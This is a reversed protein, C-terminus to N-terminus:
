RSAAALRRLEDACGMFHYPTSAPMESRVVKDGEVMEIWGYERLFTKFLADLATPLVTPDALADSRRDMALARIWELQTWIRNSADVTQWGTTKTLPVLCGSADMGRRNAAEFAQRIHATFESTGLLDARESVLSFWEFQHGPEIRNPVSQDNRPLELVAGIEPDFFCSDVVSALRKLQEAHGSDRSTEWLASIAEFLHMHPNQAPSVHSSSLDRSMVSHFAGHSPSWFGEDVLTLVGNAVDLYRAAKTHRHGEACALVVFALTYLDKDGDHVSGDPKLSRVFGGHDRDAYRELLQDLFALGRLKLTEVLAEPVFGAMRLFFFSQRACVLTRHFAASLPKGREDLAECVLESNSVGSDLHESQRLWLPLMVDRMWDQLRSIQADVNLM